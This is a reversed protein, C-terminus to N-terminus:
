HRLQRTTTMAMKYPLHTIAIGSCHRRFSNSIAGTGQPTPAVSNLTTFKLLRYRGATIQLNVACTDVYKQM